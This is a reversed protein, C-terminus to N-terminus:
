PQSAPADPRVNRVEAEVSGDRFLLTLRDGPTFAAAVIAM